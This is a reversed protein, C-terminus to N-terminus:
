IVIMDMIGILVFVDIWYMFVYGYGYVCVNNMFLLNCVRLRSSDVMSIMM